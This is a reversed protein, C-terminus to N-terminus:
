FFTTDLTETYGKLKETLSRLQSLLMSNLSEPLPDPGINLFRCFFMSKKEEIKRVIYEYVITVNNETIQCSEAYSIMKDNFTMKVPSFIAQHTDYSCHHISGVYVQPNEQTVNLLGSIWVAREPINMLVMYIDRFNAEISIELFPTNDTRYSSDPLPPNPTLKRAHELKAFRYDVKGIAPFEDTLDSWQMEFTEEHDPFERCMKETILLYENSPISNKMLRHAVIVDPGSLTTFRGIKMESIAGHHAVFKLTLNAIEQCTNCPCITHQQLWKRQYHFANYIKMCINLLEKKSPANGKRFMLVADGEIESVEYEDGTAQIIADLLIGIAVSGHTLETNTMFETFGSIDPIFITANSAM